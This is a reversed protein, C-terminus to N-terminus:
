RTPTPPWQPRMDHIFQDLRLLQAEIRAFGANMENRDPVSERWDDIRDKRAELMVLRVNIHTEIRAEMSSIQASLDLVQREIKEKLDLAQKETKEKWLRTETSTQGDSRAHNVARFFLTTANGVLFAAAGIAANSISVWSSSGGEVEM